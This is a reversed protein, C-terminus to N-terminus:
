KLCIQIDGARARLDNHYEKQTYTGDNKNMESAQMKRRSRPSDASARLARLAESNKNLAVVVGAIDSFPLVDSPKGTSVEVPPPPGEQDTRSAEIDGNLMKNNEMAPRRRQTFKTEEAPM